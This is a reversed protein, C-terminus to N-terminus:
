RGAEAANTVAAADGRRAADAVPTSAQQATLTATLAIGAVFTMGFGLRRTTM